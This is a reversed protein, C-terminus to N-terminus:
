WPRYHTGSGRIALHVQASNARPHASRFWFNVAGLLHLINICDDINRTGPHFHSSGDLDTTSGHFGGERCDGLTKILKRDDTFRTFYIDSILLHFNYAFRVRYSVCAQVALAGMLGFSLTYGIIQVDHPDTDVCYSVAHLYM